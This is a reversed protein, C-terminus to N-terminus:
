AFFMGLFMNNRISVIRCWKTVIVFTERTEETRIPAPCQGDVTQRVWTMEESVELQELGRSFFSYKWYHYIGQLM